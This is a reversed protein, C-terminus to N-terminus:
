SIMMMVDHELDHLEEAISPKYPSRGEDEEDDNDEVEHIEVEEVEDGVAVDYQDVKTRKSSRTRRKKRNRLTSQNKKENEIMEDGSEGDLILTNEGDSTSYDDNLVDLLSKIKKANGHEKVQDLNVYPIHDKVKMNIMLGNNDIMFPDKGSPWVFTYGQELCRKGMSLVSPTDELVHARVPEEFVDFQIDTMKSTSTLGNATDFNAMEDEYTEMDMRDVKKLAILDHGSGSDMIFKKDREEVPVTICMVNGKLGFKGPIHPIYEEKFVQEDVDGYADDIMRIKIDIKPGIVIHVEDINVHDDSRSLIFAMARARVVALRNSYALQEDQKLDMINKGVKDHPKYRPARGRCQVYDEKVYEVQDVKKMDFRVKRGSARTISAAKYCSIEDDDSDFGHVLAPSAPVSANPATNFLHPDHRRRCSDGFKCKGKAWNWCPEDIKKPPNSPTRKSPSKRKGKGKGNGKKYNEFVKQDHSFAVIRVM